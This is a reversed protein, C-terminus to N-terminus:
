CWEKTEGNFYDEDDHVVEELKLVMGQNRITVPASVPYM